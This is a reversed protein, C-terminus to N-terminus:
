AVRAVIAYVSIIIAPLSALATEMGLVVAAGRDGARGARLTLVTGIAFLVFSLAIGALSVDRVVAKPWDTLENRTLVFPLPVLTTLLLPLASVALYVLLYRRGAMTRPAIPKGYNEALKAHKWATIACSIAGGFMFWSGTVVFLLCFVGAFAIIEFASMRLLIPRPYEFRGRVGDAGLAHRYLFWNRLHRIHVALQVGIFMGLFFSYGEPWGGLRTTVEWMLWILAAIAVMVLMFRPSVRRLADVDAQYLPTIEVSGEFVIKDQARYMRACAITFAYDSLFLAVWLILGPWPSERFFDTV